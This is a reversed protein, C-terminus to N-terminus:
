LQEWPVRSGGGVGGGWGWERLVDDIGPDSTKHLSWNGDVVEGMTVTREKQQIGRGDRRIGRSAEGGWSLVRTHVALMNRLFLGETQESRQVIVFAIPRPQLVRVM